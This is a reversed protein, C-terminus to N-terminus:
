AGQVGDLLMTSGIDIKRLIIGEGNGHLFEGAQPRLSWPVQRYQTTQMPFYRMEPLPHFSTEASTMSPSFIFLPLSGEQM